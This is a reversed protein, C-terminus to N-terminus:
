NVKVTFDATQLKGEHLFQLFARYLGPKEFATHFTIEPGKRDSEMPHVHLYQQTDESIVVMHGLAGLYKELNNVPKGDKAINVKMALSQGPKVEKDFSLEVKYGNGSWTRSESTYKVAPKEKGKVTIPIRSLKHGAGTPSYDQFMIFEGGFPFKTEDHGIGKSYDKERSLVTIRYSGDPQYEPHIHEFYSLDSSVIILHMKKDHVVDLPVLAKDNGEEKPTFYMTGEKGEELQAPKSRFDIRYNKGNSVHDTHELDMGCRPCKGPKNSTVEPHMPCSYIHDGSHEHHGEGHAHEGDHAHETTNNKKNDNCGLWAASALALIIISLNKM